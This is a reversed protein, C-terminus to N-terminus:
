VPDDYKHAQAPAIMGVLILGALGRLRKTTRNM